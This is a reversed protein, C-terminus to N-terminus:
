PRLIVVTGDFSEEALPSAKLPEPGAHLVLDASSLLGDRDKDKFLMGIHSFRNSEEYKVALYDGPRIDKGWYIKHNPVGLLITCQSVKKGEAVLMAVNYNRSDKRGHRLNNAAVLMDACDVGIYNMSQYTTSGFIAPVNFFGTLWGAASDDARLSIRFVKPTIGRKDGDEVGSSRHIKGNKVVLVQLWFSGVQNQYFGSQRFSEPLTEGKQLLPLPTIQWQNQLSTLEVRHYNINAYGKWKYADEDWPWGSNNYLTVIDPIIQYWHIEGGDMKKVRLSIEDNYLPSIASDTRWKGQNIRSQITLTPHKLHTGEPVPGSVLSSGWCNLFSFLILLLTTIQIFCGSNV